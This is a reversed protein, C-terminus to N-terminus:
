TRVRDHTAKTRLAASHSTKPLNTGDDVNGANSPLAEFTAWLETVYNGFGIDLVTDAHGDIIVKSRGQEDRGTVVRRISQM